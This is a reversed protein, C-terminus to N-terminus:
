VHHLLSWVVFTLFVNMPFHTGGEQKLIFPLGQCPTESYVMHGFLSSTSPNKLFGKKKQANSLFVMPSKPILVMTPGHVRVTLTYIKYILFAAVTLLNFDVFQVLHWM